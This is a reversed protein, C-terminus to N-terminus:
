IAVIRMWGFAGIGGGTGTVQSVLTLADTGNCSVFYPISIVDQTLGAATLVYRSTSSGPLNGGNKQLALRNISIAAAATAIVSVDILYNGSPLVISGATNVAGLGNAVANALPLTQQVGTTGANSATDVFLAVQNNAATSGTTSELVPVEFIVAYRVHLEGLLATGQNAITSVSLNGSDYTKIDTSGPLGGPRVYKSDAMECMQRPDLELLLDEYPMADTHPDTDECQQKSTPPADSADYDMSLIVKGSQGQTAFASVEPKYYFELYEWRYKEWQAAQKSLWPFTGAQGPNVPFATTAFGTSGAIDTIYEDEEVRCWRTGRPRNGTPFNYVSNNRPGSRGPVNRRKPKRKNQSPLKPLPKNGKRPVPPLPKRRAIQIARSPGKGRARPRQPVYSESMANMM